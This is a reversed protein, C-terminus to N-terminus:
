KVEYSCLHPALFDDAIDDAGNQTGLISSMVTIFFEASEFYSRLSPYAFTPMLQRSEQGSSAASHGDVQVAQKERGEPRRDDAGGM